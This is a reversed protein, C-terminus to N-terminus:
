TLLNRTRTESSLQSLDNFLAPITKNTSKGPSFDPKPDPSSFFLCLLFESINDGSFFCCYFLYPLNLAAYDTVKSKKMEFIINRNKM